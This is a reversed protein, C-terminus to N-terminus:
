LGRRRRSAPSDLLISDLWIVPSNFSTACGTPLLAGRCRRRLLCWGAIGYFLARLRRRRSDNRDSCGPELRSAHGGHRPVAPERSDSSSASFRLPCAPDRNGCANDSCGPPALLRAQVAERDLLHYDKGRMVYAFGALDAVIAGDGFQGDLRVVAQSM